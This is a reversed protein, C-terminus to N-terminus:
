VFGLIGHEVGVHMLILPFVQYFQGRADVDFMSM